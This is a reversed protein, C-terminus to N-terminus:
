SGPSPLCWCDLDNRSKEREQSSSHWIGAMDVDICENGTQVLAPAQLMRNARPSSRFTLADYDEWAGTPEACQYPPDPEIRSISNLIIWLLLMILAQLQAHDM